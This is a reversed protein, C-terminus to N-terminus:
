IREKRRIAGTTAREGGGRGVRCWRSGRLLGAPAPAAGPRVRGPRAAVTSGSAVVGAVAIDAPIDTIHLLRQGIVPDRGLPGPCNDRLWAAPMGALPLRTAQSPMPAGSM